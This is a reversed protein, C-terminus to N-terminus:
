ASPCLNAHLNCSKLVQANFTQVKATCLLGCLRRHLPHASLHSKRRVHRSRRHRADCTASVFRCFRVRKCGVGRGRVAGRLHHLDQCRPELRWGRMGASTVTAFRHVMLTVRRSKRVTALRAAMTNPARRPPAPHLTAPSLTGNYTACSVPRAHSPRVYRTDRRSKRSPWRLADSSRSWRRWDLADIRSLILGIVRSDLLCPKCVVHSAATHVTHTNLPTGLTACATGSARGIAVHVVQLARASLQEPCTLLLHVKCSAEDRLRRDDHRM